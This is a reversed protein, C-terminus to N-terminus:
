EKTEKLYYNEMTGNIRRQYIRLKGSEPEFELYETLEGDEYFSESCLGESYRYASDETEVSKNLIEPAKITSLRITHQSYSKENFNRYDYTPARDFTRAVILKGDEYWELRHKADGQQRVWRCGAIIRNDKIIHHEAFMEYVGSMEGQRYDVRMFAVEKHEDITCFEYCPGDLKGGSYYIGFKKSGDENYIIEARNKLGKRYESVRFLCTYGKGQIDSATFYVKEKGEKLGDKYHTIRKGAGEHKAAEYEDATKETGYGLVPEHELIYGKFVAKGTFAKNKPTYMIGNQLVLKTEDASKLSLFLGKLDVFFLLYLATILLVIVGTALLHSHIFTFLSGFNIIRRLVITLLVLLAIFGHLAIYILVAFGGSMGRGAADGGRGSNITAILFYILILIHIAIFVWYIGTSQGRKLADNFVMTYFGCIAPASIMFLIIFDKM